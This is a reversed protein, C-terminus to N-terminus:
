TVGRVLRTGHRKAKAEVERTFVLEKGTKVYFLLKKAESLAKMENISIVRHIISKPVFLCM